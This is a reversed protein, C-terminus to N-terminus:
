QPRAPGVRRTYPVGETANRGRWSACKAIAFSIMGLIALAALLLTSPEPITAIWAETDGAANSGHGVIVTGDPSVAHANHLYFDELGTVGQSILFKCNLGGPQRLGCSLKMKDRFLM